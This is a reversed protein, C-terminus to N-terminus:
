PTVKLPRVVTIPGPVTPSQEERLTVVLKRKRLPKKWTHSGRISIVGFKGQDVTGRSTKGDGWAITARHNNAIFFFSTRFSAVPGDYRDGARVKLPARNRFSDSMIEAQYHSDSRSVGTRQNTQTYVIKYTGPVGYVHSESFRFVGPSTTYLVAPSSTGDGWAITVTYTDAFNDCGPYLGGGANLTAPKGAFGRVIRLDATSPVNSCDPVFQAPASAPAALVGALM